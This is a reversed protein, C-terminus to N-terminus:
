IQTGKTSMTGTAHIQAVTLGIVVTSGEQALDLVVVQRLIQLGRVLEAM